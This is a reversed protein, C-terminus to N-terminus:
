LQKKGGVLPLFICTAQNAHRQETVLHNSFRCQIHTLKNLKKTKFIKKQFSSDEDTSIDRVVHFIGNKLQMELKHIELM